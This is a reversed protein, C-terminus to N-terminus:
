ENEPEWQRTSMTVIDGNNNQIKDYFPPAMGLDELMDLISEGPRDIRKIKCAILEANIFDVMDSRKM